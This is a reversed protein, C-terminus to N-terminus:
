ILGADQFLKRMVREERKKRRAEVLRQGVLKREAMSTCDWKEQRADTMKRAQLSREEKTMSDWFKKGGERLKKVNEPQSAIKVIEQKRQIKEIESLNEWNSHSAEGIKRKHEDTIIQHSRAERIKQRTEKSVPTNKRGLTLKELAETTLKFGRKKQAISMRQKTEESHTKGLNVIRLKEKTEQSVIRRKGAEGIKRKHEESFIRGKSAESMKRKTEESHKTGLKSQRLKQKITETDASHWVGEGGDTINTLLDGVLERYHAIWYQEREEWTEDSGHEIVTLIPKFGIAKISRIWNGCHTDDKGRVHERFRKEVHMSFGVYRVKNITPCTLTYIVWPKIKM